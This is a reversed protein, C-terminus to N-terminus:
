QLESMRFANKGSRKADYLNSDATEYLKFRNEGSHLLVVGASCSVFTELGKEEYSFSITKMLQDMKKRTLVPDNVGKLFILFEDGGVRATINGTGCQEKLNDAIRKLVEDGAMHGYTDNVQKFNDIDLIGFIGCPNENSDLFEKILEDSYFRNHLGTLYDTRSKTIYDLDQLKQENINKFMVFIKSFSIHKEDPVFVVVMKVWIYGKEHNKIRVEREAVYDNQHLRKGIDSNRFIDLKECDQQHLCETCMHWFWQDGSVFYTDVGFLAKYSAPDYHFTNSVVDYELIVDYTYELIKKFIQNVAEPNVQEYTLHDTGSMHVSCIKFTDDMSKLVTTGDIRLEEQEGSDKKHNKLSVRTTVCYIDDAFKDVHNYESVIKFNEVWQTSGLGFLPADYSILNEMIVDANRNVFYERYANKVYEAAKERKKEM